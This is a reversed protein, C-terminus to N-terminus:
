GDRLLLGELMDSVTMEMAAALKHLITITPNRRGRELSSVYTRHVGAEHALEEQSWGRANRHHRILAGVRKRIEM